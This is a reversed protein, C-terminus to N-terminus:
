SFRFSSVQPCPAYCKREQPILRGSSDYLGVSWHKGLDPLPKTKLKKYKAKKQNAPKDKSKVKAEPKPKSKHQDKYVTVHPVNKVHHKYDHIRKYHLFHHGRKKENAESCCGSGCAPVCEEQCGPHCHKALATKVSVTDHEKCCGEGCSSLCSVLCLPHCHKKFFKEPFLFILFDLKIQCFISFICLTVM